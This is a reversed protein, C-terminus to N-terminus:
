TNFIFIVRADFADRVVICSYAVVVLAALIYTALSGRQDISAEDM